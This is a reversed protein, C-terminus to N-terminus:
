FIVRPHFDLSEAWEESDRDLCFLCWLRFCLWSLRPRPWGTFANVQLFIHGQCRGVGVSSPRHAPWWPRPSRCCRCNRTGTWTSTSTTTTPSPGRRSLLTFFFWMGAPQTWGESLRNLECSSVYLPQFVLHQSQPLESVLPGLVMMLDEYKRVSILLEFNVLPWKHFNCSYFSYGVTCNQLVTCYFRWNQRSYSIIWSTQTAWGHKQGNPFLQAPM